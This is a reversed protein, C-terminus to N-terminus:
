TFIIGKQRIALTLISDIKGDLQGDPVNTLLTAIHDINFYAISKNLISFGKITNNLQNKHDLYHQVQSISAKDSQLAFRIGTEKIAGKRKIKLRYMSSDAYWIFNTAYDGVKHILASRNSASLIKALKGIRNSIAEGNIEKIVDGRKIDAQQCFEPIIIHTVVIRDKLLVYDFPPYQTNKFIERRYSLSSYFRNYAHSDKLQAVIQLLLMEYHQRSSCAIFAPINKEIVRTWSTEILSHHPDLYEIVGQLKALSLLRMNLPINLTKAYLYVKENPIETAYSTAPIYYAAATDRQWYVESLQQQIQPTLLSSSLFWKSIPLKSGTTKGVIKFKPNAVDLDKVIKLVLANFPDATTIAPLSAVNILFVSDANLKGTAFAPHYYKLFNWTQFFHSYKETDSIKKNRASVNVINFLLLCVVLRVLSRM